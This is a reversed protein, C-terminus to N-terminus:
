RRTREPLDFHAVGDTNARFPVRLKGHVVPVRDPVPFPFPIPRVFAPEAEDLRVRERAGKCIEILRYADASREYSFELYTKAGPSIDLGAFFKQGLRRPIVVHMSLVLPDELLGDTYNAVLRVKNIVEPPEGPRRARNDSFYDDDAALPIGNVIGPPEGLPRTGVYDHSFIWRLERDSFYLLQLRAGSALDLTIEHQLQDKM